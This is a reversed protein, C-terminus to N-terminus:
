VIESTVDEVGAMLGSFRTWLPESIVWLVRAGALLWPSKVSGLYFSLGGTFQSILKHVVIEYQGVAALSVVSVM